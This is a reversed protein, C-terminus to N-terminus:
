PTVLAETIEEPSAIRVDEWLYTCGSVVKVWTRAPGVPHRGDLHGRKIKAVTELDGNNTIVLDGKCITKVAASIFPIKM